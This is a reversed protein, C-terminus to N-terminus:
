RGYLTTLEALQQTIEPTIMGTHFRWRWNNGGASGPLNMRASSDLSLIDQLPIVVTDAVSAMLARIFAWSINEERGELDLYKRAADREKRIDEDSRTSGQSGASRWWGLTTDNDHTGPYAALNRNYNHPRFSSAQADNGFAFQLVAMGPFSFQRRIAEVEPTIVGLNEAVIPLEGLVREAAAFLSAGPGKVWKGNVATTEAAAVEWYAEIGRFHDLRIMDVVGLTQQIREIWWKFGDAAMREWNYIPNGWLQGTASFYDPPVGAVSTPKGNPDLCFLEPHSWVDASDHAVYIPLDGFIRIGRDRCYSKLRNWQSFFIFQEFKCAEIEDALRERWKAMAAPERRAIDGEWETWTREGHAQKVAFYLSYDELWGEERATWEMFDSKSQRLRFREYARRLLPLKYAATEEFAAEEPNWEPTHPLDTSELLEEEILGDLSILLPNGAFASLSQYPSNGYGIPTLPLTQWIHQKSTALFDAFRFAEYGLDGTGFRGPLSTPHLLVGSARPFRM